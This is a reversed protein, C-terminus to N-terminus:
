QTHAEVAVTPAVVLTGDGLGDRDLDQRAFAVETGPRITLTAGKFVRVQGQILIRGQWTTDESLKVDSLVQTALEAPPRLGCGALLALLLLGCARVM